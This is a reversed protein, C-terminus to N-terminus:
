IYCIGRWKRDNTKEKGGDLLHTLELTKFTCSKRERVLDPNIKRNQEM